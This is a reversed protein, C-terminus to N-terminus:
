LLSIKDMLEQRYAKGIPVKHQELFVYGESISKIFAFNILFSRHVRVFDSSPLKEEISKLTHSILYKEKLAQIYAYNDYAEVFLIDKIELSILDQNQRVFVKDTIAPTTQKGKLKQAYRFLALDINSKLDGEDFPKVIFGYPHTLKVRDLTSQDYYSTLFVFPLNFHENIHRAVEVGDKSGSINIDLLILNPSTSAIGAIAGEYNDAQGTVAFGLDALTAEIDDAILPEDEVIFIKPKNM